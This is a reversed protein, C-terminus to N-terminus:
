QTPGEATQSAVPKTADVPTEGTPTVTSQGLVLKIRTLPSENHVASDILFLATGFLMWGLFEM